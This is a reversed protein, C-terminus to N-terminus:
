AGGVIAELGDSAEGIVEIGEASRLLLVFGSRVLEQDDVVAVRIM